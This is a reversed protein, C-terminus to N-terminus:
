LREIGIARVVIERQDLRAELRRRFEAWWDRDIGDVMIEFVAIDDRVVSGRDEEWLGTAPARSYETVGGFRETLELRVAEFTERGYPEGRNDRVPLLIQILQM